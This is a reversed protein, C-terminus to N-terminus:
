CMALPAPAQVSSPKPARAEVAPNSLLSEALNMAADMRRPHVILLVDRSVIERETFRAGAMQRLISGLQHALMRKKQAAVVAFMGGQFPAVIVELNANAEGDYYKGEIRRLVSGSDGDFVFIWHQHGDFRARLLDRTAATTLPTVKLGGTPAPGNTEIGQKM